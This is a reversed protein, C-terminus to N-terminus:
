DDTTRRLELRTKTTSVIRRLITIAPWSQAGQELAESADPLLMLVLNYILALLEGISQIVSQRFLDRLGGVGQTRFPQIGSISLNGGSKIRFFTPKPWCWFKRPRRNKM